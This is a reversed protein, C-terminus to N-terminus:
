SKDAVAIFELMIKPFKRLKPNHYLHASCDVFSPFHPGLKSAEYINPSTTKAAEKKEFTNM